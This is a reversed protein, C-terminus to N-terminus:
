CVHRLPSCPPQLVELSHYGKEERTLIYLINRATKAICVLRRGCISSQVIGLFKVIFHAASPNYLYDYMSRVRM